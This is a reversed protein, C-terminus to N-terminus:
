TGCRPSPATARPSAAALELMSVGLVVKEGLYAEIVQPNEAVERPAGEAIKEGHDLVVCATSWACSRAGHHARGVRDHRRARRPHAPADRGRRADGVPRARGPERRGAAAEPRHGAGAGARAEQARGRRPTATSAAPDTPLGVLTSSRARRAAPRPKRTAGTAAGFHAAVAVNELISLKRFPRPIQFTRRSARPPLDRGAHARRDGRRPLPHLGGTPPSRAPSATSARRRARATPGSSGSSRARPQVEFSIGNLPPSAASGSPRARRRTLVSCVAPPRVAPPGGGPSALETLPRRAALLRAPPRCSRRPPQVSKPWVISSSATSRGPYVAPFARENQGACPTAGGLFKVGYGQM